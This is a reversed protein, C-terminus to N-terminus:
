AQKRDFVLMLVGSALAAAAMWEPVHVTEKEKMSLEIPGIKADHTEKTYSFQGYAFGAVGGVILLIALIRM